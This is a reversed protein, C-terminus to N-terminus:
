EWTASIFKASARRVQSNVFGLNVEESKRKKGPPVTLFVQQTKESIPTGNDSYFTVLVIPNTCTKLSMNSIKFDALAVSGFGGKHWDMDIEVHNEPNLIKDREVSAISDDHQWKQVSDSYHKEAKKVSDAYRKDTKMRHDHLVQAAARAKEQSILEAKARAAAADREGQTSKDVIIAIAVMVGTIAISGILLWKLINKVVGARRSVDDQKM